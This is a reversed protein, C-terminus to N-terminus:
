SEAHSNVTFYFTSGKGPESEVWIRGGSFEIIRKVLTLGIGTGEIDPNLRNFLGFIREQYEGAIGIGNDRIFFVHWGNEDGNLGVEIRPNPQNGMFKAANDLLNQVVELLRPKDVYVMPLDPQVSVVIHSSDLRGHVIELAESFVINMPVLEFPNVIRGIRSLELLDNLLAQMKEVASAIRQMDNELRNANGSAIDRRLYGLYGSITVLPSKLDHSVTYTYRELEANRDELETNAQALEATRLQVRMELEDYAKRLKDEMRRQETIDRAVLLRGILSHRQDRLPSIFADLIYMRGDSTTFEIDKRISEEQEFLHLLGPQHSFLGQIPKGIMKGAAIGLGEVASPNIDVIRSHADLVIVVDRMYEFVAHRAIPVIEFLGYRFLGWAYILNAIGFSYPTIDRQGFLIIGAMSPISGVFPFIFGIVIILTQIRFLTHQRLLNRIFLVTAAIYTGYSYLFSIWMAPTFEYILADFPESPVIRATASRVLGHWPNTYLLILFLIPFAWLILRAQRSFSQKYGTYEYAFMLLFFSVFMSGIFQFDDWFLKAELSPSALELTYGIAWSLEAATVYVFANIGPTQRHQWAYVGVAGTLTISLLIPLYNLWDADMFELPKM